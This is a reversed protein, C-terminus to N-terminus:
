HRITRGKIAPYPLDPVSNWLASPKDKIVLPVKAPMKPDIVPIKSQNPATQLNGPATTPHSTNTTEPKAPTPSTKKNCMQSLDVQQGDRTQLYCLLENASASSIFATAVVSISTTVLGLLLFYQNRKNIM